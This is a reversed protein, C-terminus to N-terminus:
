KCDKRSFWVARVFHRTMFLAMALLVGATTPLFQYVAGEWWDIAVVLACIAVLGLAAHGLVGDKYKCWLALAGCIAGLVLMSVLGIITTIDM